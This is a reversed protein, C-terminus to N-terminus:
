QVSVVAIVPSMMYSGSGTLHISKDGDFDLLITTTGDAPVTFERNLKVEGSPITVAATRTGTPETIGPACPNLTSANDFDLTAAQVVLRIQTYHGELLASGLLDQATDKELKKLDCTRLSGGTLTLDTWAGEADTSKHVSVKSFTVLVAKADTFPSDKLMVNLTGNESPGSLSSCGATGVGSAVVIALALRGFHKITAQKATPTCSPLM